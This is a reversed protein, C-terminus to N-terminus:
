YRKLIIANESQECSWNGNLTKAYKIYMKIKQDIEKSDEGIVNLILTDVKPYSLLYDNTIICTTEMIDYVSKSNEVIVESKRELSIETTNSSEPKFLISYNVGDNITFNYIFGNREKTYNFM